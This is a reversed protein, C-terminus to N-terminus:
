SHMRLRVRALWRGVTLLSLVACGIRLVHRYSHTCLAVVKIRMVVLLVVGWQGTIAGVTAHALQEKLRSSEAAAELLGHQAVQVGM